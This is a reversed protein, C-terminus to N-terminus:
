TYLLTNVDAAPFTYSFKVNLLIIHFIEHTAADFYNLNVDEFVCSTLILDFFTWRHM